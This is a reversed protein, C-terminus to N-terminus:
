ASPKQRFYDMIAKIYGQQNAESRPITLGLSKTVDAYTIKNEKGKRKVVLNEKMVRESPQGDDGLVLQFIVDDPLERAPQRPKVAKAVQKEEIEPGELEQLPVDEHLPDLRLPGGSVAPQAPQVLPADPQDLVFSKGSSSQLPSQFNFAFSELSSRSSSELSPTYPEAISPAGRRGLGAEEAVQRAREVMAERSQDEIQQLFGDRGPFGRPGQPGFFGREGQPGQPGQPGPRQALQAVLNQLQQQSQLLPQFSQLLQPQSQPQPQSQRQTLLPALTQLLQQAQSPQPPGSPKRSKGGGGKSVNVIVKQTVTSPKGKLKTRKVKRPM